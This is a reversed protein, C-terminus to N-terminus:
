TKRALWEVLTRGEALLRDYGEDKLRGRAAVVMRREAVVFDVLESELFLRELQDSFERALLGWEDAYIYFAEDLAARGIQIDIQKALPDRWGYRRLGMYPKVTAFEFAVVSFHHEVTSKGSGTMHRYEFVRVPLGDLTGELIHMAMAAGGKFLTVFPYNALVERGIDTDAHRFLARGMEPTDRLELGYREGWAQRELKRRRHVARSIAFLVMFLAVFVLLVVGFVMSVAAWAGYKKEIENPSFQLLLTSWYLM